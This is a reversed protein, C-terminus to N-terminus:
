MDEYITGFQQEFAARIEAIREALWDDYFYETLGREELASRLYLLYEVRKVRGCAFGAMKLQRSMRWARCSDCPKVKKDHKTCWRTGSARTLDKFACSCCCKKVKVYFSNKKYNAVVEKKVKEKTMMKKQKKLNCM